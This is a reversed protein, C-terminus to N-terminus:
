SVSQGVLVKGLSIAPVAPVHLKISRGTCVTTFFSRSAPLPDVDSVMRVMTTGASLLDSGAGPPGADM